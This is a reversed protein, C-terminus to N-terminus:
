NTVQQDLLGKLNWIKIEGDRGASTILNDAYFLAKVLKSHAKWVNLM